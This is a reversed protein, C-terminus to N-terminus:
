GEGGSFVAVYVFGENKPAREWWAMLKINKRKDDEIIGLGNKGVRLRDVPSKTWGSDADSAVSSFRVCVVHPRGSLPAKANGGNQAWMLQYATKKLKGIIRGQSATGARGAQNFPKCLELPLVFEFVMEGQPDGRDNWKETPPNSLTERAFRLSKAIQFTM